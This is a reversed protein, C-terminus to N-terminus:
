PVTATKDPMRQETMVFGTLTWRLNIMRSVFLVYNFKKNALNPTQLVTPVNQPRARIHIHTHTVFIGYPPCSFTASNNFETNQWFYFECPVRMQPASRLIPKTAPSASRQYLCLSNRRWHGTTAYSATHTRRTQEPWTLRLHTRWIYNKKVRSHAPNLVYSVAVNDAQRWSSHRGGQPSYYQSREKHDVNISHATLLSNRKCSVSIEINVINSIYKHTVFCTPLKPHQTAPTAVDRSACPVLITQV